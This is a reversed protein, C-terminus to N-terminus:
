AMLIARAVIPVTPTVLTLNPTVDTSTSKRVFRVTPSVNEMTTAVTTTVMTTEKPLAVTALSTDLNAVAIAPAHAAPLTLADEIRVRIQGRQGPPVSSINMVHQECNGLRKRM